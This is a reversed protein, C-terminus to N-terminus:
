TQAPMFGSLSYLPAGFLGPVLYVGFSFVVVALLMRFFGLHPLPSDMKFRLYGLLYLGLLLALVIWISLFIPRTLFGLGLAVDIGQLFKLSFALVVFGLVIKVSNM